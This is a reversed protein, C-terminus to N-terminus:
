LSLLLTLELKSKVEDKVAELSVHSGSLAPAPKATQMESRRHGVLREVHRHSFHHFEGFRAVKTGAKRGVLRVHDSVAGDIIGPEPDHTPM